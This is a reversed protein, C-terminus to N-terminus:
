ITRTKTTNKSIMVIMMFDFHNNGYSQINLSKIDCSWSCDNQSKADCIVSTVCKYYEYNGKWVGQCLQKPGVRPLHDEKLITYVYSPKAECPLLRVPSRSSQGHPKLISYVYSSTVTQSAKKFRTSAGQKWRPPLPGVPTQPHGLICM